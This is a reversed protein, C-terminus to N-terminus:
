GFHWSMDSEATHAYAENNLPSQSVSNSYKSHSVTNKAISFLATTYAVLLYPFFQFGV